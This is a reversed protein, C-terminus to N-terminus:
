PATYKAVGFFQDHGDSVVDILVVPVGLREDPCRLSGIDEFFDLTSRIQDAPAVAKLFYERTARRLDARFCSIPHDAAPPISPHFTLARPGVLPFRTGAEAARRNAHIASRHEAALTRPAAGCLRRARAEEAGNQSDAFRSPRSRRSGPM